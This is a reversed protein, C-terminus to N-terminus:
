VHGARDRLTWHTLTVTRNSRNHIRVYEANLSTNSGTDPGPSNYYIKTIRVPSRAADAAPALATTIGLMATSALVVSGLMTATRRMDGGRHGHGNQCGARGIVSPRGCALVQPVPKAPQVSVGPPRRFM